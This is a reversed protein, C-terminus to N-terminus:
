LFWNYQAVIVVFYFIQKLSNQGMYMIRHKRLCSMELVASLKIGGKYEPKENQAEPFCQWM